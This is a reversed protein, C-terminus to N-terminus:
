EIFLYKHTIGDDLDWGPKKELSVWLDRSKLKNYYM